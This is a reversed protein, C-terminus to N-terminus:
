IAFEFNLESVYTSIAAGTIVAINEAECNVCNGNVLLATVPAGTTSAIETDNMFLKANGAGDSTIRFDYWVNIVPTFSSTVSTRTTGDHVQLEVAGGGARKMLIGRAVLDGTAVNSQRGFAVRSVTNVDTPTNAYFMRWNATFRKAWNFPMSIGASGGVQGRGHGGVNVGGNGYGIALSAPANSRVCYGNVQSSGGGSSAFAFVTPPPRFYSCSQKAYSASAPTIVTTASLGIQAQANTAFDAPKLALPDSEVTIGVQDFSSINVSM